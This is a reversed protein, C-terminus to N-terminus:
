GQVIGVKAARLVRDNYLFGCQQVFFVTGPEKGPQPAEFTAEHKHPDFKEGMPEIKTLGHKALTKEFVAQTMKIGEYLDVLEKHNEPDQRKDEDVVSLARDFNDVSELLDKAFKQLAFDKAKAIERKTTEQLNRFDAISRLLQDKLAAAEKDKEEYKTKLADLELELATPEPLDKEEEVPETTEAAAETKAQEPETKLQQEPEAKPQEPKAQDAFARMAMLPARRVVPKAPLVIARRATQFALRSLM